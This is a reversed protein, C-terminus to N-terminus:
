HTIGARPLGVAESAVSEEWWSAILDAVAEPDDAMPFHHAGEVLLLPADPYRARWGAPFGGKVAPSRRGFVLLVPLDRLVTRVAGDVARLHAEGALADRLMAVAIRRVRRDRYPGRFARRGAATLHRGAGHGGASVRALLNTAANVTDFTRGGFVRLARAISPNEAPLPWAFSETVALGAVLEPRRAAVALAVPGGLDHVVLTIDRLGLADVFSELVHSAAEMSPRYTPAATSLGSGPLDLAVCRFQDRLRDIVDRFVFSWAPGAHVLPLTPGSGEDVHHILHGDVAVHRSEFPFEALPLWGPRM